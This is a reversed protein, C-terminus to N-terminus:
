TVHANEGEAEQHGRPVTLGGFAEATLVSRASGDALREFASSFVPLNESSMRYAIAKQWSPYDPDYMPKIPAATGEPWWGMRVGRPVARSLAITPGRLEGNFHERLKEADEAGDSEGIRQVWARGGASQSWRCGGRVRRGSVRSVGLLLGHPRLVNPFVCLFRLGRGM